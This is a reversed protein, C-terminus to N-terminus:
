KREETERGKRKEQPKRDKGNGKRGPTTHVEEETKAVRKKLSEKNGTISDSDSGTGVYDIGDGGAGSGNGVDGRINSGRGGCSSYGISKAILVM